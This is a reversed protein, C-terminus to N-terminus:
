PQEKEEWKPDHRKKRAYFESYSSVLVDKLTKEPYNEVGDLFSWVWMGNTKICEGLCCWGDVFAAKSCRRMIKRVPGRDHVIHWNVGKLKM